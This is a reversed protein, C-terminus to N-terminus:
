PIRRVGDAAMRPTALALTDDVLVANDGIIIDTNPDGEATYAWAHESTQSLTVKKEEFDAQSAFSKLHSM